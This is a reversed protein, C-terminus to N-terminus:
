DATIGTARVLEAWEVTERALLAALEDPSSAAIAIGRAAMDQVLAADRAAAGAAQNLRAVIAAPTAAPVFLGQWFEVAFGALGAEAVTPVEPLVPIRAPSTVALARLRGERIFPLAELIALFIVPV